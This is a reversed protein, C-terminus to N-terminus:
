RHIWRRNEYRGRHRAVVNRDFHETYPDMVPIFCCHPHRIRHVRDGITTDFNTGLRSGLRGFWPVVGRPLLAGAVMTLVGFMVMQMRFRSISDGQSYRLVRRSPLPAPLSTPMARSKAGEVRDSCSRRMRILHATAQAKRTSGEKSSSRGSSPRGLAAISPPTAHIRPSDEM